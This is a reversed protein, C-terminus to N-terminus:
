STLGNNNVFLLLPVLVLLSGACFGLVRAGLSRLHHDVMPPQGSPVIIPVAQPIEESTFDADRALRDAAVLAAIGAILAWLLGVFSLAMSVASLM